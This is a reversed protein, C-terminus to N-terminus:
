TICEIMFQLYEEDSTYIVMDSVKRLEAIINSHHATKCKAHYIIITTVLINLKHAFEYLLPLDSIDDGRKTVILISNIKHNKKLDSQRQYMSDLDSVAVLNIVGDRKFGKIYKEGQTSTGHLLVTRQASVNM